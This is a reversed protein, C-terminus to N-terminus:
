KPVVRADYSVAYGKRGALMEYTAGQEPVNPLLQAENPAHRSKIDPELLAFRDLKFDLFRELKEPGLVARVRDVFRYTHALVFRQRSRETAEESSTTNEVPAQAGAAGSIVLPLVLLRSTSVSITTM